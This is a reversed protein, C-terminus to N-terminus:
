DNDDLIMKAAKEGIMIAPANTNGSTLTPMISIDAVRLGAFGHVRLRPDVVAVPGVGMRCSGAAHYMTSGTKQIYTLYQEDTAVRGGPALEAAIYSQLAPQAMIKRAYKMGVVLTERDMATDLFNPQVAPADAARPSKIRVHGRSEPRMLTVTLIMGPEKELRSQVTKTPDFDPSFPFVHLQIDPRPKEPSSRFYAQVHVASNEFMGQRLFLYKLVERVLPLGRVRHNISVPKSLRYVLSGLYHEQLNQGVAPLDAIVPIGHSQLLAGPGLGSLQLLQPSNIAGASIIVERRARVARRVGSRTFEIGVATKGVFLIREVLTGTEVQLNARGRAPHLFAVAASCRRGNRSNLQFYGIGEQRGANVDDNAPLGAQVGAAIVANSLESRDVIDSVWLPGGQGHGLSVGRAYNESIIFLPLVDQWGWGTNGLAAWGDYDEPQGRVYLMGNVSSSGGLLRGRQFYHSRNATGPVPETRYEWILDKNELILPYTMPVHIYWKHDSGGAELLLVRHQGSASLRNALVCGASGAGVIIFDFDQIM